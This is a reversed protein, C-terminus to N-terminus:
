VAGGYWLLATYPTVRASTNRVTESLSCLFIRFERSMLNLRDDTALDDRKKLSGSQKFWPGSDEVVMALM